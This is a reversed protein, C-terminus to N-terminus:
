DKSSLYTSFLTAASVIAIPAEYHVLTQRDLNM